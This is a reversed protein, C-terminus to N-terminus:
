QVHPWVDAAVRAYHQEDDIEGWCLDPLLLVAISRQQAIAVLADTEYDMREHGHAATFRDFARQMATAAAASLRTIGVFEGVVTQLADRRKSMARLAGRSADVWVEDGAATPGSAITVDPDTAALIERLARAEYVIDSELVLVDASQVKTLGIALSAMSGSSAFADNRVVQVGHARTAFAEYQEALYGGVITVRGIGHARLLRTSRAVLSEGDFAILGKPRDDVVARLRQGMGAALIIADRVSM